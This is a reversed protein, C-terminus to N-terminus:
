YEVLEKYQEHRELFTGIYPCTPIVRLNNEKAYEFAFKVIKGALGKGRLQPPTYTHLFNIKNERMAYELYAENGNITAAFVKRAEDLKIEVEM